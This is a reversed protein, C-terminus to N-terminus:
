GYVHKVIGPPVDYGAGNCAIHEKPVAYVHVTTYCSTNKYRYGHM